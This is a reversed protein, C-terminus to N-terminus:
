GDAGGILVPDRGSMRRRAEVYYKQVVDRDRAAAQLKGLRQNDKQRVYAKMLATLVDSDSLRSLDNPDDMVKRM